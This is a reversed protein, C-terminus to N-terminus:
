TIQRNRLELRGRNNDCLGVLECSAKMTRVLAETYMASRGGIGVQVYRKRKM